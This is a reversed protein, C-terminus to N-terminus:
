LACILERPDLIPLISLPRQRDPYAIAAAYNPALSLNELTWAKAAEKDHGLHIFHAPEGPLVTVRFDHLHASLGYGIAKIYAEKRTWCLFFAREREESPLSMIEAAEDSCFYHNAIDQIEALPRIQELDVGIQCGVTFAFAATDGSHTTNFELSAAAAVFPKGKLGYAFQIRAPHLNLYRGLLCRLVGRTTVFSCRLHDFHFRAARHKEDASLVPEFKAAIALSPNISLVWIHVACKSFEFAHKAIM